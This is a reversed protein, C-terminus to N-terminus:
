ERSIPIGVDRPKPASSKMLGRPIDIRSAISKMLLLTSMGITATSVQMKTPNIMLGLTIMSSTSDESPPVNLLLFINMTIILHIAGIKKIAIRILETKFANPMIVIYIM